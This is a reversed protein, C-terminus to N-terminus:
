KVAFAENTFDYTGTNPTRQHTKSIKWKDDAGEEATKGQAPLIYSSPQIKAIALKQIIGLAYNSHLHPKQCMGNKEIIYSGNTYRGVDKGVCVKMVFAGGPHEDIYSKMDFVINDLTALKEGKEIRQEYDHQSIEPLGKLNNFLVDLKQKKNLQYIIECILLVVFWLGFNAFILYAARSNDAAM